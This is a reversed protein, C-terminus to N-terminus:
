NEFTVQVIMRPRTFEFYAGLEDHIERKTKPSVEKGTVDKIIEIVRQKIDLDSDKFEVGGDPTLPKDFKPNDMRLVHGIM